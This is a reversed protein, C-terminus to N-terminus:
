LGMEFGAKPGGSPPNKTPPCLDDNLGFDSTTVQIMKLWQNLLNISIKLLHLEPSKEVDVYDTFDTTFDAKIENRSEFELEIWSGLEKNKRTWERNL